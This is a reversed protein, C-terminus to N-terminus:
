GSTVPPAAGADVIRWPHTEDETLELTWREHFVTVSSQSGSVITTTDRNEIYRRGSAEIEVTMTPPLATADLAVVNMRRVRPGRVVLRTNEGPDGPHLLDRAAAPTALARLGADDGDVAEAWASVARRVEVELVDPAFRGDALSLDLAATRATGEFDLDAVDAVTFGESVKEAVAREVLSEEDLRESDAAPTAIIPEDLQHDGESRQEISLLIWHGDREALTWYEVMRSTDSASDSREIRQGSSGLVYDTLMAEIRVVVRDDSVGARNVLGVYEVEVEGVVEVRNHWGKHDFDDLRREWEVMMDAGALQRLRDRDRADWAEQVNRFLREAEGHVTESAFEADSEAAEVSALEVRAVRERKKKAYRISVIVAIVMFIIVAIVILVFLIVAGAGGGLFLLGGGGRGGGGGFGGGGFGGSGSGGRAWAPSAPSLAAAMALAITVLPARPGPTPVADILDPRLRLRHDGPRTRAPPGSQPEACM